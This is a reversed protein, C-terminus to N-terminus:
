LVTVYFDSNGSMVGGRSYPRSKSVRDSCVSVLGIGEGGVSM